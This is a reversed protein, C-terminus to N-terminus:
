QRSRLRRVHERVLVPSLAALGRVLERRQEPVRAFSLAAAAEQVYRETSRSAPGHRLQLRVREHSATQLYLETAGGARLSAPTLGEPAGCRFGLAGFLQRWRRAVQSASLSVLFAREPLGACEAELWEVLPQSDVRAHQM